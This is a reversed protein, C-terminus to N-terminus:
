DGFILACDVFVEFFESFGSAIGFVVEKFCHAVFIKKNFISVVKFRKNVGKFLNFIGVMRHNHVNEREFAFTVLGCFLVFLRIV